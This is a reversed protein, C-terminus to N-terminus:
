PIPKEAPAEWLWVWLHKLLKKKVKETPVREEIGMFDDDYDWEVAVYEYGRVLAPIDHLILRGPSWVLGFFACVEAIVIIIKQIKIKTEEKM